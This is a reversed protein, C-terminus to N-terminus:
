VEPAVGCFSDRQKLASLNFLYLTTLLEGDTSRALCVFSEYTEDLLQPDCPPEPQQRPALQQLGHSFSHCCFVVLLWRFLAFIVSFILSPRLFSASSLALWTVCSLKMPL